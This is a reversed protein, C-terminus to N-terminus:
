VKAAAAMAENYRKRIMHEHERPVPGIHQWEQNVSSIEDKARRKRKQEDDASLVFNTEFAVKLQEALTMGGQMGQSHSAPQPAVGALIELRLCLVEKKKLNERHLQDIVQFAERREKFFTDCVSRFDRQLQQEHDKDAPGVRQWAEQIEIIERVTEKTISPAASLERVRVLLGEKEAQNLPRQQDIEKDHRSKADFFADCVGKFRRWIADQVEKPVPGIEKWQRQLDVIKKAVQIFNTDGGLQSTLAEAEACLAEKHILNEPRLNDLWGYYRDCASRLRQWIADEQDKPVPGIAKWSNQLAQFKVKHAVDPQDALAEAEVCLAEKSGLNAQREQDLEDHHAKRRDFFHDCAARFSVYVEQEKGQPGRGIVKWRAQLDKILEATKQWESSEQCAIAQDRLVIKEELNREAEDDLEQFFTRCRAFNRDTTEHFQRWLVPEDKADAPGVERWQEQLEKIKKFVRHLDNERDLVEAEAILQVKLNKNQWRLWSEEKQVADFREAFTSVVEGFESDLDIVGAPLEVPQQWQTTIEALRQEVARVDGNTLLVKAEALLDQRQQWNAERRLREKEERRDYGAQLQERLLSLRDAVCQRGVFVPHWNDFKRQAKSLQTVAQDLELQEIMSAVTDLQHLSETEQSKEQAAQLRSKIFLDSAQEYGLLLNDPSLPSIRSILATWEQQLSQLRPEEEGTVTTALTEIEVVIQQLRELRANQEREESSRAEEKAIKEQYRSHILACHTEFEANLPDDGAAIKRWRRQCQQSEILAAEIDVADTLSRVREALDAMDIKRQTEPDPRNRVTEIENVKTQAKARAVRNSAQQAVMRLLSEDDIKEIACLAAAKGCNKTILDALVEQNTIREIAAQRVQTEEDSLVIEALLEDKGLASLAILKGELSHAALVAERQLTDVRANIESVIVADVGPSALSALVQWDEIKSLAKQRVASDQDTSAVQLLIQRDSDTLADVAKLRVAPDSHQWKPKFLNFFAM